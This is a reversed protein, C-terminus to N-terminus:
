GYTALFLKAKNAVSKRRDSALRDIRPRLAKIDVDEMPMKLLLDLAQILTIWEESEVIFRKATDISWQVESANLTSRNAKLLQMLTWRASDEPCGALTKMVVEKHEAFDFSTHSFLRKLGNSARLIVQTEACDFLRLYESFRAPEAIVESVVSVTEGLSYPRGRSLQVEFDSAGM